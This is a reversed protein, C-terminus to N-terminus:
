PSRRCQAVIQTTGCMCRLVRMNMDLQMIFFRSARESCYAHKLKCRHHPVVKVHVVM